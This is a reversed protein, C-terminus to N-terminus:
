IAFKFFHWLIIACCCSLYMVVHFACILVIVYRFSLMIFLYIHFWSTWHSAAQPWEVCLIRDIIILISQIRNYTKKFVIMYHTRPQDAWWGDCELNKAYAYGIKTWDVPMTENHTHTHKRACPHNTYTLQRLSTTSQDTQTSPVIVREPHVEAFENALVESPWKLLIAQMPELRSLSSHSPSIEVCAAYNATNTFLSEHLWHPGAACRVHHEGPRHM